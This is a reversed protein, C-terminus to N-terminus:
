ESRWIRSHYQNPYRKDYGSDAAQHWTHKSHKSYKKALEIVHDKDGVFDIEVENDKDLLEIVTRSLSAADSKSLIQAKNTDSYETLENVLHKAKYINAVNKIESFHKYRTKDKDVILHYQYYNDGGEGAALFGFLYMDCSSLVFRRITLREVLPVQTIVEDYNLLKPKTVENVPYCRSLIKDLKSM